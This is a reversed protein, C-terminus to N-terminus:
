SNSTSDPYTETPLVVLSLRDIRMGDMAEVRLWVGDSKIEDHLKPIRGLKGLMYGAITDYHPDFLETGLEENVDVTLALGEVVASGDPLVQIEPTSADFPDSVEGVIEELLDELTVLGATGGYEDLVIAIHQRAMRFQQLLSSVAITEPVYIPERLLGRASYGANKSERMVKLLDNVHVIGIIQDWNDEYVPFKTLNSEAALTVLQDLPTDAGVGIIETRPIMVQRVVLDGLDFIASLMDKEPAQIVGVDESMTLIHKLEELTYALAHEGVMKLGFLALVKRTAWDLIDVFWKFVVSFIRMPHATLLAFREPDHLTAVKPVQEGFIVHLSTVILLSIALPLVALIPTLGQLLPPLGLTHFYPELLREFTNEGVAGLALSVITIGLQSAAILRDRKAPSELWSKVIRASANGKEALIDIRARKSAIIAFEVSVFFGNLAVLVIILAFDLIYIYM